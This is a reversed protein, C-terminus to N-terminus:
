ADQNQIAKKCYPCSDHTLLWEDVCEQHFCHDCPLQRMTEEKEYDYQCILCRVDCDNAEGKGRAIAEPDFRITRLANIKDKAIHTWRETKVDGVSEGLRMMLEYAMGGSGDGGPASDDSGEGGGGGGSAADGSPADDEMAAQLAALDEDSFQGEHHRLYDQAMHQYSAVAEEAMLQQALRISEEEEQQLRRAVALDDEQDQHQQQHLEEGEDQCAPRSPPTSSNDYQQLPQHHKRGATAATTTVTTEPERGEAPTSTAPLHWGDKVAPRDAAADMKCSATLADSSSTATTFNDVLASSMEELKNNISSKTNPLPM